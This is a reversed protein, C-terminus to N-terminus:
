IGTWEELQMWLGGSLNRASEQVSPPPIYNSVTYSNITVHEHNYELNNSKVMHVKNYENKLGNDHNDSWQWQKKGDNRACLM